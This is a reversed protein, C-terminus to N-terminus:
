TINVRRCRWSGHSSPLMLLQQRALSTGLLPSSQTSLSTGSPPCSLSRETDSLDADVISTNDLIYVSDSIVAVDYLCFDTACISNGDRSILRNNITYMTTITSTNAHVM